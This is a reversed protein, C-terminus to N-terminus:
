TEVEIEIWEEKGILRYPKNDIHDIAVLIVWHNFFLTNLIPNKEIISDIRSRPAYVIVQLRIAEHYTLDDTKNVSQLPLGQMLDSGNGQMIGLKGVVNQTIKSGSGYNVNDLTSFLYQSNIWQAVVMPATLITELLKGEEDIDWRYSHLFCRGDLDMEKTLERPGVIFAANRALGWEPRVESWNLSKL